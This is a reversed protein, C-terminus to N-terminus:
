VTALFVCDMGEPVEDGHMAAGFAKVADRVARGRPLHIRANEEDGGGEDDDDKWM